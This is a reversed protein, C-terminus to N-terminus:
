AAEGMAEIVSDFATISDELLYAGTSAMSKHGATMRLSEIGAGAKRAQMLRSHKLVHPFCLRRPIGAAKGYKRMIYSFHDRGTRASAGAPLPFIPGPPCAELLTKEDMLPDDPRSVLRQDTAYSGKLRKIAIIGGEIHERRLMYAESARLAHLYTVLILLHDQASEKQAAGLLARVQEHTMHKM